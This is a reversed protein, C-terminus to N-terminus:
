KTGTSNNTNSEADPAASSMAPIRKIYKKYDERWESNKLQEQALKQWLDSKEGQIQSWIESAKQIAGQQFYIEGLKYRVSSLPRTKEYQNLLKNFAAIAKEKHGQKLEIFGLNELAKAHVEVSVKKSDNQLEDIKELSRVADDYRKQTAELEALKLYPEAVLEPIGKWERLLETLYRIASDTDGRKELMKVALAIREIQEKETMKEPAKIQKLYEYAQNFQNQDYSVAALRLNMESENPVYQTLEVEKGEKTGKLSYMKNLVDLYFKEAQKPTGAQEFAQGLFYKTDIRNSKKLWSDSYQKHTALVKLFDGHDMESKMKDNINAVIRRTIDQNDEVSPNAQYYATLIDIAKQYNKRRTYGDAMMVSAFENLRPLDLKKALETINKVAQELEKNEMNKMRSSLLRLRAVIVMPNEGYRFYAELFAGMVKQQDAGLIELLEGIRTMAFPANKQSPFKRVFDRFTNLSELYKKGGFLSEAQNFFANPYQNQAEPYKSLAQRYMEVAGAFDKKKILIDGKRYAAEVQLEKFASEKEVRNLESLAEDFKNLALFSNALGIRALDKSMKKDYEKRKMHDNFLRIAGLADGRDLALFGLLISTREALASQPFAKIADKYNVTAMEYDRAEKDRMYLQYYVDGTMFMVIEKYKSDPYNKLFWQATKLFVNYRKNNFLTELLRAHKNEDTAEPVIEYGPANAKIKTWQALELDLMPFPIYFNSKSKIIAEEKIEHDKMSFREYNDDGGDFLGGRLSTDGSILSANLGSDQITLVDTSTPARKKAAEQAVAVKPTQPKQIDASSAKKENPKKTSVESAVPAETSKYFDVILRSPEDTLYDFTDIDQEKLFFQVSIKQDPGGRKVLVKEIFSDSFKQLRNLSADDLNPLLMEVYTQGAESKRVLKYDWSKQGIVEFHAGDSGSSLQASPLKSFASFSVLLSFLLTFLSKQVM